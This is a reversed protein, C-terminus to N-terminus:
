RPEMGVARGRDHGAHRDQNLRDPGEAEVLDLHALRVDQVTGGQVRGGGVSDPCLVARMM